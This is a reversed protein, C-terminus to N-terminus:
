LPQASAGAEAEAVARLVADFPAELAPTPEPLRGDHAMLEALAMLLAAIPRLPEEGALDLAMLDFRWALNALRDHTQIGRPQATLLRDRLYSLLRQDIEIPAPVLEEANETM